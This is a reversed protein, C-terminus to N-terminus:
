SLLEPYANLIERESEDIYYLRVPRGNSIGPKSKILGSLELEVIREHVSTKSGGIHSCIENHYRGKPNEKLIFRVIERKKTDEILQSMMEVQKYDLDM